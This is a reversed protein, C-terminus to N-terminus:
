LKRVNMVFHKTTENSPYKSEIQTIDFKCAHIVSTEILLQKWPQSLEDNYWWRWVEYYYENM